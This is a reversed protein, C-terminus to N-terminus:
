TKPSLKKPDYVKLSRWVSLVISAIQRSITLKALSPKTGKFVHKLSRNFNRNLRRNKQFQAKIWEGNQDCVWDSSSRMVIGLGCYAWFQRKNAFRDPTVEIPMIQVTRIKGMGPCTKIVKYVHHKRVEVLM